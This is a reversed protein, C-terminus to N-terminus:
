DEDGTSESADRTFGTEKVRRRLRQAADSILQRRESPSIEAHQQRRMEAAIELALEDIPSDFLVGFRDRLRDRLPAVEDEDAGSRIAEQYRGFLAESEDDLTSTLGFWEGRLIRDATRGEPGSLPYIRAEAGRLESALLESHTCNVISMASHTTGVFQIKPFRKKLTPILRKQWSPHLHEDIEDILVIGAPTGGNSLGGALYARGWLDLLWGATGRYGDGLAHFPMTGWPGRVLVHKSTVDLGQAPALGLVAKLHRVVHAFLAESAEGATEYAGLKLSRLVAETDVLEVDDDFLSAVADSRRYEPPLPDGPGTGRNVGYGCVFVDSWPFDAPETEKRVIEQGSGDRTVFTRTLYVTDPSAPDVLTVEIRAESAKSGRKKQHIFEGALKGLLASTEKQQCLGLALARLFSTKGSGNQGVLQTLMRPRGDTTFHVDLTRFCRADSVQLRKLYLKKRSAQSSPRLASAPLHALMTLAFAAAPEAAQGPTLVPADKDGLDSIGLVVAVEVGPSESAARLFGFGESDVAVVDSFEARLHEWAESSAPTRAVSIIPAFHIRPVPEKSSPSLHKTWRARRAEARARQVFRHSTHAFELQRNVFGDWPTPRDIYAHIQTAVVVHGPAVNRLGSASGVVFVVQPSFHTLARTTELAANDLGPGIEAVAVRWGGFRGVEYLTGEPHVTEQVERLHGLVAQYESSQATLIVATPM